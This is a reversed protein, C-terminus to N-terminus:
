ARVALAEARGGVWVERAEPGDLLAQATLRSPRGTAEGQSVQILPEDPPLLELLSLAALLSAYTNSSANDEGFGKLPGFARFDAHEGRRGPTTFAILGLTGTERNLESIANLDPVAADLSAHDRLPLVLNPRGASAQTVPFPALARAGLGLTRAVELPRLELTKAEADGQRLLWEGGCLQASQLDQMLVDTVDPILGARYLWSLAAVAGSDSEGKERTPTFARLTVQGLELGTVFLSLPAGSGAALRQMQAADLKQAEPYVAVVKGGETSPAPFVRHLIAPSM